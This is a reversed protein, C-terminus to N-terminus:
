EAPVRSLGQTYNVIDKELVSADGISGYRLAAYRELLDAARADKLRAALREIPEQGHRPHGAKELTSLLIGLCPLAAEDDPLQGAQAVRRRAGRAVIWILVMFGFIWAIATQLVTFRRLRDTLDDYAVRMADAISAAYGARHERNQALESEPTPDRTTWGHGPVWAEVWAHANRERVVYYGFPSQEGVRYGMVMRAPIGAARAVLTMGTAFYECHGSKGVFLFDIVPDRGGFRQFTRAYRFETRLRHEIAELKETTTELGRTWEDALNALQAHIGRPVQLDSAGPPKPEAQDRDGIVFHTVNVGHKSERKMAGAGDVLVDAPSAVILRAALPLFFRDTRESVAAVEVSDIASDDGDYTAPSEVETRDSRVWQGAAYFDLVAGRLYDVRPGRVRLVVTDSDLLGDLAGLDMHDSFGVRPSWILATSHDGSTLWWYATRLGLTVGFAIAGGAVLMATGVAFRRGSTQIVPSPEDSATPVLVSTMLFLVVFAAYGAVHTEGVALLGGFVLATTIMRGGEPRLVPFRAAAALLVAAAFRTWGENLFGPHTDYLVPVIAYGAGAGMATTVIQRGRDLEWRPGIVALITALGAITAALQWSDCSKGLALAAVLVPLLELRRAIV